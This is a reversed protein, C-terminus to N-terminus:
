GQEALVGRADAVDAFRKFFCLLNLHELALQPRDRLAALYLDGGQDRLHMATEVMVAVGQSSIYDLNSCELLIHRKGAKRLSDLRVSFDHVTCADLHGRISAITLVGDDQETVDLGPHPSSGTSDLAFL